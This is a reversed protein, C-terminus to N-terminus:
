KRETDILYMKRNGKRVSAVERLRKRELRLDRRLKLDIFVLVSLVLILTPLLLSLTLWLTLTNDM